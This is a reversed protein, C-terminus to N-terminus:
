VGNAKKLDFPGNKIPNIFKSIEFHCPRAIDVKILNIFLYPQCLLDFSELNKKNKKQM